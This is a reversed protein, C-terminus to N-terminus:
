KYEQIKLLLHWRVLISDWNGQRLKVVEDDLKQELSVKPTKKIFLNKTKKYNQDNAFLINHITLKEELWNHNAIITLTVFVVLWRPSHALIM